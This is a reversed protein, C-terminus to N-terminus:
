QELGGGAEGARAPAALMEDVVDKEATGRAVPELWARQMHKNVAFGTLLPLFAKRVVAGNGHPQVNRVSDHVREGVDGFLQVQRALLKAAHEIGAAHGVALVEVEFLM